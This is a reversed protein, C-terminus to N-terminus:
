PETFTWLPVARGIVARRPLPGFYRGDLSDPEDWTLLFIEGDALRHCGSWAPLPRFSRDRERAPSLAVGDVTVLLGERCVTQGNLAAVRKVLPVGPPLTGRSALFAAIDPPPLVVAWDDVTLAAGPRIAYLGIPASASANWLLLPHPALALPGLLLALGALTVALPAAAQARM